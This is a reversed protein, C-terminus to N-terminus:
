VATLHFQRSGEPAASFYRRRGRIRDFGARVPQRWIRPEDVIFSDFLIGRKGAQRRRFVVRGDARWLRLQRLPLGAAHKGPQFGRRICRRQRHRGSCRRLVSINEIALSGLSLLIVCGTMVLCATEQPTCRTLSRKEEALRVAASFFYAAAAALTAEIVCAAFESMLSGSGFLLAIGTGLIPIFAALPAFLRSHVFRKWDSFLWRVSGIAIIVALYRFSDAPSLLIYGMATGILSPLLREKPVAAMYSAGFPALTGLVAGRSILVGGIFYLGNIVATRIFNGQVTRPRRASRVHEM